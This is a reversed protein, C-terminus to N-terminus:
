RRRDATERSGRRHSPDGAVTRRWRRDKVSSPREWRCDNTLSPRWRREDAATTRQRRNNASPPQESVATRRRRRDKALLTAASSHAKARPRRRKLASTHMRRRGAQPRRRWRGQPVPRSSRRPTCGTSVLRGAAWADSGRHPQENCTTAARHPENAASSATLQQCRRQMSASTTVPDRRNFLIQACKASRQARRRRLTHPRRVSAHPPGAVAHAPCRASQERLRRRVRSTTTRLIRAPGSARIGSRVVDGSGGALHLAVHQYGIVPLGAYLIQGNPWTSGPKLV